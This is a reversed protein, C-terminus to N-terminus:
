MHLEHLLLTIIMGLHGYGCVRVVNPGLHDKMDQVLTDFSTLPISLDYKYVYGDNMLSEAIRERLGWM